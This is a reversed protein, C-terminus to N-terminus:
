LAFEYPVAMSSMKEKNVFFLVNENVIGYVVLGQVYGNKM